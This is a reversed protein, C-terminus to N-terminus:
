SCIGSSRATGSVLAGRARALPDLDATRSSRVPAPNSSATVNLRTSSRRARGPGARDATAAAEPRGNWGSAPSDGQPLAQDGAQQGDPQVVLRVTLGVGLEELDGVHVERSGAATQRILRRPQRQDGARSKRPSLPITSPQEIRSCTAAGSRARAPRRDGQERRTPGGLQEQSVGVQTVQALDVAGPELM